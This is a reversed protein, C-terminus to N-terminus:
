CDHAFLYLFCLLLLLRDWLLLFHYNLFNLLLFGELFPEGEVCVEVLDGLGEDLLFLVGGAENVQVFILDIAGDRAEFLKDLLISIDLVQELPAIVAEDVKFNVESLHWPFM